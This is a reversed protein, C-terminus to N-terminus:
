LLPIIDTAAYVCVCVAETLLATLEQHSQCYWKGSGRPPVYGKNVNTDGASQARAGWSGKEIAGDNKQAECSQIHSAREPTMYTKGSDSM